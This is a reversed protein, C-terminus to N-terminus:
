PARKPKSKRKNKRTPPLPPPLDASEPLRKNQCKITREHGRISKKDVRKKGCYLCDTRPIDTGADLVETNERRTPLKSPGYLTPPATFMTELNHTSASSTNLPLSTAGHLSENVPIQLLSRLNDTDITASAEVGNLAENENTIIEKREKAGVNEMKMGVKICKNYRCFRCNKRTEKNIDCEEKYICSYKRKNEVSLRFFRKCAECTLAEYNYGSAEDGCVACISGNKKPGTHQILPSTDDKFDNRLQNDFGNEIDNIYDEKEEAIDDLDSFAEPDVKIVFDNELV